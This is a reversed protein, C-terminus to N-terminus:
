EASAIDRYALLRLANAVVLVTSGEHLLVAWGIGAVGTLTAPILFAVMGLSAWLNQRIVRRSARSLGVAFPLKRLDDAMLAVDATELAVDSGGAGMAIGVTANAMAPADNVGDGVMAILSGRAVHEAIVAVKDEPLLDGRADDLGVSAAVGDAARQHDGTLMMLKEVGLARLALLTSSATDRPPDMLGLVGLFRDGHHVVITTRGSDSLREAAEAIQTPLSLRLREQFLAPKGLHATQGDVEARVGFGTIASVNEAATRDDGLEREAAAVVARALPHDSRREVALAIRLLEERPAADAAVIDTLAPQGRTLTGTKDFAIIDVAGLSELHAGGKILVGGRAARAVGSLVASPTAIALACPSAAVLVAMARYFSASFPEDIVMWAFMCFFVLVLVAPVFVREFRDTFRQTPSRQTQAERVMTVVRALTSDRSLKTVVAELATAGNITGAFLRSEATIPLGAARPRKDVPMSEGTIPAQNVAGEGEVVYGDAPVRTNPRVLVRDGRTLAEVPVEEEGGGPLLVTAVKPALEALAEIARRARGMAHAELAHGLGFLFLLLGGEAWEGLVAAGVAAVLMLADIELRRGRLSEVVERLAFFGGFFYAGVFAALPVWPPGTDLYRDLLWGVLTLVGCTIAFGLELASNGHVHAEESHTEEHEHGAHDGEEEHDVEDASSRAAPGKLRAEASPREVPLGAATLASYFGELDADPALEVHMWKASASAHAFAVGRIAAVRTAIRRAAREHTVGLLPLNIHRYARELELGERRALAEIKRVSIRDPDFHVCLEAGRETRKIHVREISTLGELSATLRALCPDVEAAVSPLVLDIDIQTSTTRAM